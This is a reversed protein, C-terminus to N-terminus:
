ALAISEGRRVFRGMGQRGVFRGDEAILEGRLFVKEAVGRVTWGEYPNYDSL